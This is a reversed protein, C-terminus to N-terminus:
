FHDILGPEAVFPLPRLMSLNFGISVIFPNVPEDVTGQVAFARMLGDSYPNIKIFDESLQPTSSFKRSLTWYDLSDRLNGCVRDHAVRLEDYIGQYGFIGTLSDDAIPSTTDYVSETDSYLEVNMIAQESLHMFEPFPWEYRDGYLWERPTEQMYGVDPKILMITMFCGPEEVHYEDVVTDEAATIGHGAYDGLINNENSVGGSVSAGTPATQLVESIVVPAVMGGLYEPRDLRADTPSVGFHSKIFETFRVGARANRELFKQIQFAVRMDSVNFTSAQFEDGSVSFGSISDIGEISNVSSSGSPVNEGSEYPYLYATAFNGETNKSGSLRFDVSDGSGDTLYSGLRLKHESLNGLIGNLVSVPASGTITVPLAPATGRQQFPLASTFYDKDWNGLQLFMNNHIFFSSKDPVGNADVFKDDELNEDAFYNAYISNYAAIPYALVNQTVFSLYDSDPSCALPNIVGLYDCLECPSYWYEVQSVKWKSSNISILNHVRPFDRTENGKYGGSYVSEFDPWNIVSNNVPVKYYDLIRFPVFFSYLHANIEQSIPVVMPNLRVVMEASMKIVDGPLCMKAVVPYLYGFTYDGRVVHSLNFLNRDPDLNGVRQFVSNTGAM